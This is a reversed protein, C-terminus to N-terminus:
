GSLRGAIGSISSKQEEEQQLYTGSAAQMQQSIEQLAQNLKKADGQFREMLQHFATAAQGTWSTELPALDSALKAVSGSVEQEVTAIDKSLQAMHDINGGYGGM